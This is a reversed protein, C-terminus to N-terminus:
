WIPNTTPLINFCWKPISPWFHPSFIDLLLFDKRRCIKIHHFTQKTAREYDGRGCTKTISFASLGLINGCLHASSVPFDPNKWARRRFESKGWTPTCLWKNSAQGPRPHLPPSPSTVGGTAMVVRLPPECMQVSLEEREGDGSSSHQDQAATASATGALSRTEGFAFSSRWVCKVNKM